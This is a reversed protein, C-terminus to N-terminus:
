SDVEWHLAGAQALSDLAEILCAENAGPPLDVALCTGQLWEHPLGTDVAKGHLLEHVQGHDAVLAVRLTRHGSKHIVATVLHNSDITVVDRYCIGYTFFPLPSHPLSSNGEILEARFGEPTDLTVLWDLLLEESVSDYTIM